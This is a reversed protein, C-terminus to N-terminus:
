MNRKEVYSQMQHGYGFRSIYGPLDGKMSDSFYVSKMNLHENQSAPLSMDVRAM